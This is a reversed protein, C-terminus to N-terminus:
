SIRPTGSHSAPQVLRQSVGEDISAPSTRSPIGQTHYAELRRRLDGILYPKALFDNMGAELCLRRQEETPCATVGLIWLPSGPLLGEQEMGRIRRTADCGDLEPMFCDMLVVHFQKQQVKAVAQMGDNAEEPSCGLKALLWVAYMRNVPDDDVVLVLLGISISGLKTTM